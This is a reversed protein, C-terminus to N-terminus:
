LFEPYPHVPFIDSIGHGLPFLNRGPHLFNDDIGHTFIRGVTIRGGPANQGGTFINSCLGVFQATDPNIRLINNKKVPKTISNGLNEAKELARGPHNDGCRAIGCMGGGLSGMGTVPRYCIEQIGVMVPIRIKIINFIVDLEVRGNGTDQDNVRVIGGTRNIRFMDEPSDNVNRFFIVQKDDTVLDVLIHNIVPCFGNGHGCNDTITHRGNAHTTDGLLHGPGPTTAAPYFHIVPM